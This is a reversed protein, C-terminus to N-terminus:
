WSWSSAKITLPLAPLSVADATVASYESTMLHLTMESAELSRSKPRCAVSVKPVRTAGSEM